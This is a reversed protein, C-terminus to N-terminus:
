GGIEFKEVNYGHYKANLRFYAYIESYSCFFDKM